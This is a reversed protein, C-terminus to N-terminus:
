KIKRSIFFCFRVVWGFLRSNHMANILEFNDRYFSLLTKLHPKESLLKEREENYLKKNVSSIGEENFVSITLPIYAISANNLIISDYCLFWDSAIKLDERYFGYKEFLSKKIFSSQHPLSSFSLKYIINDSLLKTYRTMEPKKGTELIIDGVIFDEVHMKFFSLTKEVVVENFFYDGSNLFLLYEGNANKVGKNMAHYIGRDPESVWYSFYESYFKILEASGDSSGGDIIIWEFDKSTQSIVSDITKQLGEKDNYNITIISLKPNSIKKEM